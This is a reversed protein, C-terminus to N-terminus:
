FRNEYLSNKVENLVFVKRDKRRSIRASFAQCYSNTRIDEPGFNMLDQVRQMTFEMRDEVVLASRVLEDAPEVLKVILKGLVHVPDGTKLFWRPFVPADHLADLRPVDIEGPPQHALMIFVAALRRDAM